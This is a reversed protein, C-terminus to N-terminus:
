KGPRKPDLTFKIAVTQQLNAIESRAPQLQWNLESPVTNASKIRSHIGDGCEKFRGIDWGTPVGVRRCVSSEVIKQVAPAVINVGREAEKRVDGRVRGKAATDIMSKGPVIGLPCPAPQREVCVVSPRM